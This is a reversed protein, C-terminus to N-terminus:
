MLLVVVSFFLCSKVALKKEIQSMLNALDEHIKLVSNNINFNCFCVLLCVFLLLFIEVVFWFRDEHM